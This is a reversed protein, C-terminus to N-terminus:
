GQSCLVQRRLSGLGHGDDAITRLGIELAQRELVHEANCVDAGIVDLRCRAQPKRTIQGLGTQVDRDAFSRFIGYFASFDDRCDRSVLLVSRDQGVVHDAGTNM